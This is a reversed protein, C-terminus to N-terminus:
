IPGTFSVDRRSGGCVRTLARRADHCTALCAVLWQLRLYLRGPALIRLLGRVHQQPEAAFALWAFLALGSLVAYKILPNHKM